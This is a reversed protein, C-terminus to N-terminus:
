CDPLIDAVLGGRNGCLMHATFANSSTRLRAPSTVHFFMDNTGAEAVLLCDVAFQRAPPDSSNSPSSCIVNRRAIHKASRDAHAADGELKRGNLLIMRHPVNKGKAM